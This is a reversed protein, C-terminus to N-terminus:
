GKEVAVVLSAEQPPLEMNSPPFGSLAQFHTMKIATNFSTYVVVLSIVVMEVM